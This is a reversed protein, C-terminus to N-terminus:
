QDREASLTSPKEASAKRPKSSRRFMVGSDGDRTPRSNNRISLSTNTVAEDLTQKHSPFCEDMLPTPKKM